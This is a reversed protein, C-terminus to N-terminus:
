GLLKNFYYVPMASWGHCLSWGDKIDDLSDMTEWFSTAGKSLMYSYTKRIDDLIFEKGDKEDIKLVADYLYCKMSLTIPVLPSSGDRDRVAEYTREDGLGILLAFTNGIVNEVGNVTSSRFLGTDENFFTRVIARKMSETDYEPCPLGASAYMASLREMSYVFACNIMLDYADCLGFKGHGNSGHSWEYFNWYPAGQNKILGSEDVWSYLRDMIGRMTTATESLISVDKTHEIYEYVAVPYMVSFFPIAPTNVAPYTLELMGDDRKGKSMFILNERQFETEEFAYYGCLMQNRSDLIYLAQERWPCDEYHTHMCLRLTRLSVDYILRDLANSTPTPKETLPYLVPIIGIDLIETDTDAIVELYRGGLRLFFNEFYNEGKRCMFDLSFDRKGIIYNVRGEVLEEAYAVKVLGDNKCKVRLFLYGSEERGLDFLRKGESGVFRASVPSLDEFRKVPRPVFSYSHETERCPTYEAGNELNTMGVTLGLQVTIFREQGQLYSPSIRGLTTVDSKAIQKGDEEVSYILGAGNDIHCATEVGEYRVTILLTNVGDRCYPTIDERDYYKENKYNAFQCYLIRKGNLYVIHDTEACILLEVRGGGYNFTDTFDAFENPHPTGNLWIWKAGQFIM